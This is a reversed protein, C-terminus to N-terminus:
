PALQQWTDVPTTVETQEGTAVDVSWTKETWSSVLTVPDEELVSGTIVLSRGDPSWVFGTHGGLFPAVTPGVTRYGSGDSAVIGVRGSLLSVALRSGDPSWSSGPELIREPELPLEHSDILNGDADIDVVTITSAVVASVALRTGDPSWAVASNIKMGDIPLRRINTGDADAIIAVLGTKDGGLLAIHRGDPRWAGSSSGADVGAEIVRAGSGDSEMLIVGNGSTGYTGDSSALIAGGDPAWDLQLSLSSPTRALETLDTGDTRVTMIRAPATGRVFAIRDGQPSFAPDSDAEPGAVLARPTGDLQDAIFLDGDQEFVIAGNRFPSSPLRPSGIVLSGVVLAVLLLALIAIMAIPRQSPTRTLTMDMPLWREPLTWGPRQGVRRTAALARELGERSGREPGEHLWDDLEHDMSENM